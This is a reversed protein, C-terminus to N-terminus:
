WLGASWGSEYMTQLQELSGTISLDVRGELQPDDLTTVECGAREALGLLQAVQEPKVHEVLLARALSNQSGYLRNETEAAHTDM